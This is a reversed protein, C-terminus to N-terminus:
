KKAPITESWIPPNSDAPPLSRYLRQGDKHPDKKTYQMLKISNKIFCANLIYVM